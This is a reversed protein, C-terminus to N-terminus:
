KIETITWDGKILQCKYFRFPYMENALKLKLFGDETVWGGKVEHIEIERNALQVFFDPTYYTNNALRLKVSEFKYDRIEGAKKRLELINAYARETKNAKRGDLEGGDSCAVATHKSKKQLSSVPVSPTRGTVALEEEVTTGNTTRRKLIRNIQQPDTVRM